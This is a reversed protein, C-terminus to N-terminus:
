GHIVPNRANEMCCERDTIKFLDKFNVQDFWVLLICQEFHIRYVLLEYTHFQYISYRGYASNYYSLKDARGPTNYSLRYECILM